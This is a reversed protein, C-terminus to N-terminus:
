LSSTRSCIPRVKTERGEARTLMVSAAVRQFFDLPAAKQVAQYYAFFRNIPQLAPSQSVGILLSASLLLGFAINASRRM